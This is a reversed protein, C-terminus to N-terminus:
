LLVSRVCDIIDSKSKGGFYLIASLLILAELALAEAMPTYPSLATDEYGSLCQNSLTPYWIVLTSIPLLPDAYLKGGTILNSPPPPVPAVAVANKFLPLNLLICTNVGPLPYM